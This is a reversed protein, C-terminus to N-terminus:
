QWVVEECSKCIGTTVRVLLGMLQRHCVVCETNDLYVLEGRRDRAESFRTVATVPQRVTDSM